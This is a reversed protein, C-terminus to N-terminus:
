KRQPPRASSPMLSLEIQPPMIGVIEAGSPLLTVNPALKVTQSGPGAHSCDASVTLESPDFHQLQDRRGRLRLLVTPPVDGAVQLGAPINVLVLPASYGAEVRPESNLAAWLTLAIALAALKLAVRTLFIRRLFRM